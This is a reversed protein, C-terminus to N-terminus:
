KTDGRDNAYLEARRKEDLVIWEDLTLPVYDSFMAFTNILNCPIPIKTKYGRVDRIEQRMEFIFRNIMLEDFSNHVHGYLMYTKPVANEDIRYQGNYCLQPYHSLVVKRKNDSIEMYPSIWGFLSKDFHRDELYKDHNGVILYKRGHLRTLVEATKAGNELSLDGLIVVEDNTRVRSNWKAIMYSNMEEETPFGRFDMDKNLNNHYFHLDAIYYRM